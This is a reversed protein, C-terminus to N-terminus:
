TIEAETFVSSQQALTVPDTFTVVYLPDNTLNVTMNTVLGSTSSRNIVVTDGIVHLFTISVSM